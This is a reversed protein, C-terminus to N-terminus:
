DKLELKSIINNWFPERPCNFQITKVLETRQKKNLRLWRADEKDSM